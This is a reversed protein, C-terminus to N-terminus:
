YEIGERAPIGQQFPHRICKMETIYDAQEIFFDDPNRGTIVIEVKGKYTTIFESVMDTDIIGWNYAYTIEDFVVLDIDETNVKKIIEQFIKNHVKTIEEKEQLSMKSYFPFKRDSRIVFVNDLKSLINLESTRSSKMFQSFIVNKGNGIARMVLGLSATTKGKGDGCYLHILARSM